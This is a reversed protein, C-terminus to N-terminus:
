MLCLTSLTANRVTHLSIRQIENAFLTKVDSLIQLKSHASQIEPFTNTSSRTVKAVMPIHFHRSVTRGGFYPAIEAVILLTLQFPLTNLFFKIEYVVLKKLHTFRISYLKCFSSDRRLLHKRRYVGLDKTTIQRKLYRFKVMEDDKKVIMPMNNWNLTLGALRLVSIVISREERQAIVHVM